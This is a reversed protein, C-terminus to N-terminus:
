KNKSTKQTRQHVTHTVTNILARMHYKGVNQTLEHCAPSTKQTQNFSNYVM